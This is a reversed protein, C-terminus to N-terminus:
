HSRMPPYVLSTVGTPKIMLIHLPWSRCFNKSAQLRKSMGMLKEKKKKKKKNRHFYKKKQKVFKANINYFLITLVFFMSFLSLLFAM